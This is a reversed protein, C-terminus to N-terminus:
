WDKPLDPEPENNSDCDGCGWGDCQLCDGCNGCKNGELQDRFVVKPFQDSDYSYLDEPDVDHQRIVMDIEDPSEPVLVRTIGAEVMELGTCRICFTDARYTYGVIDTSHAM